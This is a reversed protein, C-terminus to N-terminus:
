NVKISFIIFFYEINSTIWKSQLFLMIQELKLERTFQFFPFILSEKFFWCKIKFERRNKKFFQAVTKSIMVFISTDKGM